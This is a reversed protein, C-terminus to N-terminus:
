WLFMKNLIGIAHNAQSMADDLANHHNGVRVLKEDPAFSKLTRYCRNNWFSWPLQRGTVEFATQLIPQDFDAGNGWVKVDLKGAKDNLCGLSNLWDDFTRLAASLSPKGPNPLLLRNRVEPAQREWWLVTDQDERLHYQMTRQIETYFWEHVGTKGFVCAGISLIKCGASTGLTELDIMVHKDM